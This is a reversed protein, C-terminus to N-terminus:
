IIEIKVVSAMVTIAANAETAFGFKIDPPQPFPLASRQPLFAPRPMKEDLSPSNTSTSRAKADSRLYEDQSWNSHSSKIALARKQARKAKELPDHRELYGDCLKDIAENLSVKGHSKESLLELVRTLKQAVSRDLTAKITSQSDSIVQLRDEATLLPQRTRVALGIWEAQNEKTVVSSTKRAKGVTIRQDETALMLEPIEACKRAVTVYNYSQHESLQLFKVCFQFLSNYGTAKYAKTHDLQPLVEILQTEKHRFESAISQAKNILDRINEFGWSKKAEPLSSFSVANM